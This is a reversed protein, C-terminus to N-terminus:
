LRELIMQVPPIGLARKILENYCGKPDLIIWQHVPRNPDGAYSNFLPCSAAAMSASATNRVESMTSNGGSGDSPEGGGDDPPSGPDSPPDGQSPDAVAPASLAVLAALLAIPAVFSKVMDVLDSM